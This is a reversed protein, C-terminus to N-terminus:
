GAFKKRNLPFHLKEVDRVVVTRDLSKPKPKQLDPCAEQVCRWACQNGKSLTLIKSTRHNIDLRMARGTEKEDNLHRLGGSM